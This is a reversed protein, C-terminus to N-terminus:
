FWDKIAFLHDVLTALAHILEVKSMGLVFTQASFELDKMISKVNRFCSLQYQQMYFDTWIQM